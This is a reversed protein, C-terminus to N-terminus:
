GKAKVVGALVGNVFAGAGDEGFKKALEVAENIAVKEPVDDVYKIEYIALMLIARSVKSIREIRWGEALNQCIIDSLEDYRQLVGLVVNKIYPMSSISQPVENMLNDFLFDVDDRHQNVGFIIKFAECRAQSRSLKKSMQSREKRATCLCKM